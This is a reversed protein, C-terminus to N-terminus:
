ALKELIERLKKEGEPSLYFEPWDYDGQVRTEESILTLIEDVAEDVTM